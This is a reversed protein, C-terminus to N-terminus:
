APDYGDTRQGPEGSGTIGFVYTYTTTHTSYYNGVISGDIKGDVTEKGFLKWGAQTKSMEDFSLTKFKSNEM